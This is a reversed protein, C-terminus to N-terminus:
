NGWFLQFVIQDNKKIFPLTTIETRNKVALDESAM